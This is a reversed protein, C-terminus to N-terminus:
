IYRAFRSMYESLEEEIMRESLGFQELSYEHLGHKGQRNEQEWRLMAAEAEDTM